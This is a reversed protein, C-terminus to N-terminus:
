AVERSFCHFYYSQLSFASFILSIQAPFYLPSSLPVHSPVHISCLKPVRVSSLEIQHEQVERKDGKEKLEYVKFVLLGPPSFHTLQSHFVHLLLHFPPFQALLVGHALLTLM